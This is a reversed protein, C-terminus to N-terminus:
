GSPLVREISLSWDLGEGNPGDSVWSTFFENVIFTVLNFWHELHSTFRVWLMEGSANHESSRCHLYLYKCLRELTASIM